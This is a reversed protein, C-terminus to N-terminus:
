LSRNISLGRSLFLLSSTAIALILPAVRLTIDIECSLSLGIVVCVGTVRGFNLFLERDVIYRYPDGDSGDDADIADLIMPNAAGWLLQIALTELILYVLAGTPSYMLALTLGGVVMLVVASKLVLHRSDPKMLRAIGYMVGSSVLTAVSQTTGAAGEQGVLRLILLTPIFTCAGEAIGKLATFVRARNWFTSANRVVVASPVFDDFRARLIYWGGVLQIMLTLFALGRYRDFIGGGGADFGLQLFWGCIVPSIVSLFTGLSSEISCFYDRDQSRTVQLSLLNRNAWYFGSAAGSVFGVVLLDVVAVSELGFLLLTSASQLVLGVAYLTSLKIHRLMHGNLIFVLSIGVMLTGNYLAIATVDRHQRWIFANTFLGLLPSAISYAIFSILLSRASMNLSTFHRLEARLRTLIM